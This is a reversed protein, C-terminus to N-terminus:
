PVRAVGFVVQGRGQRDVLRDTARLAAWGLASPVRVREGDVERKPSLPAFVGRYQAKSLDVLAYHLNQPPGVWSPSRVAVPELGAREFTARLTSPTFHGIHELERLGTWRAGDRRRIASEFNPVEIVVHGGPRAWRAVTRLFDTPAAMHELVHFAVVADYAHEPLGSEQLTGTRVDLGREERAQASAGPLPEAGQVEWGRDRAALLVEGTGCGVDVLRGRDVFREILKIRDAAVRLLYKQFGPAHVDLGFQTEGELYGDVYIEAPDAYAPAFVFGCAECRHLHKSDGLDVDSAREAGCSPCAHVEHTILAAVRTPPRM